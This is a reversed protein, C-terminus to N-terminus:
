SIAITSKGADGGGLVINVGPGPCWSVDEIGRFRSITLKLIVPRREGAEVADASETTTM